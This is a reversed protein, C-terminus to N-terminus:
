DHNVELTVSDHHGRVHNIQMNILFKLFDSNFTIIIARAPFDIIGLKIHFISICRM